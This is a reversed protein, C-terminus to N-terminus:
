RHLVGTSDALIVIIGILPVLFKTAQWLSGDISWAGYVRRDAPVTGADLPRGTRFAKWRTEVPERIDKPPISFLGFHLVMQMLSGKPIFMEYWGRGALFTRRVLIDREYFETSILAVTTDEFRNPIIGPGGGRELADIARIEHWPITLDKLWPVHYSIGAPSLTLISRAPHFHRYLAFAIWGVGGMVLIWGIVDSPTRSIRRPRLLDGPSNWYLAIAAVIIIAGASFKIVATGESIQELLFHTLLVVISVAVLTIFARLIGPGAPRPDVYVLFFVGALCALLALPVREMNWRDRSYEVIQFVDVAGARM